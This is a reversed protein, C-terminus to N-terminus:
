TTWAGKEEITAGVNVGPERKQEACGRKVLTVHHTVIPPMILVNASLRVCSNYTLPLAFRSGASSALRAARLISYTSKAVRSSSKFTGGPLRSWASSPLRLPCCAIETFSWHRIQKRNM